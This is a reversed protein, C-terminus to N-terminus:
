IFRMCDGNNYIYENMVLEIRIKLFIDKDNSFVKLFSLFIKIM